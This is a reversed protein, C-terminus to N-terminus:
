VRCVEGVTVSVYEKLFREAILQISNPITASFLLSQKVTPLKDM